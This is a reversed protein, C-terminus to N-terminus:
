EPETLAAFSKKRLGVILCLLASLTWLALFAATLLMQTRNLPLGTLSCLCTGLGLGAAILLFQEALFNGVIRGPQTGLARMVAIERRRSQVLLWALAYGIVGALLYLADYLVGLYQIQRKMSHVTNLYVEDEIMAFGKVRDGSRVWTFGADAMAQRLADLKATDTLTFTFSSYDLAPSLGLSQIDRLDAATWINRGFLREADDDDGSAPFFSNGEQGPRVFTLPSFVAASGVPAAYSAVVQLSLTTMYDSNELEYSVVTNIRDGLQIGYQEMMAKPLACVAPGTRYKASRKANTRGDRFYYKSEELRIFDAESWGELWEVSGSQSYHFLPSRQISSVGTWAPEKNLLYVTSEYAYTSSPDPVDFSIQSGGEVGLIKIHGLDVTFCCDKVLGSAILRQICRSSIRLGSIQKGYYNTASGSIVANAQYSELQAQYGGLSNSLRGFFLAAAAGLLLVAATRVLNRRLSLLGYKFCGSLRSVHAAHRHPRRGRRKKKNVSRQERLSLLAFVLTFLLTGSLLILVALLYSGLSFDPQFELTRTVALRTASFRFDQEAFQSAFRQLAEFVRNEALAGVVAGLVAGLVALALAASLFYLCVHGRGSGLAYMTRATERQRSIFVHSQLAMACLALLLCVALFIGSLFLLEEMPETAAAYGQDYVHLRFGQQLLPAAKKLFASVAQNRLRFQGISYGNVPRIIGDAAHADPLFVWYPFGETHSVIGVIEYDGADLETLNSEAYLDGEAQLVRCPFRDGLKLGLLGAVRESVVCVKARDAYEEPTFFRGENLTMMQQHIPYLDEIAATYSVRCSDNKLHLVEAYRLFPAEAESGAGTPVQPPLETVVGNENLRVSEAQFTPNSTAGSFFRGAMLYSGPYLLSDKGDLTRVLILRDAFDDQAYCVETVLATYLGLNDDYNMLSVRLVAANPDPVNVDRRHIQPSVLLEASAPEWAIVEPSRILNFIQGQNETLAAACGEDYVTQDPYNQGVYELEAITHFYDDCDTM